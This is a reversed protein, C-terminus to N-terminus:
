ARNILAQLQEALAGDDGAHFLLGNKRHEVLEAMGGLDSVIVPIKTAFAEQIVNPSNEYWLSPVVLIDLDEMVSVLEKRDFLGKFEIKRHDSTFSKLKKVYGPNKTLDGFIDLHIPYDALRNIAKILVEVGKIESIQGIYGVRLIKTTQKVVVSHPLILIDVGQRSFIIKAPDVGAKIYADRLFNSPSIIQKTLNLEDILVILRRQIDDISQSNHRWYIDMLGPFINRLWRYRRKEEALCRVCKWSKIPLSSLSGDSRIMQIRPCLYWFDTLSVISPIGKARAAKLADVTLLYGGFVHFIDAKVVELLDSITDGLATNQYFYGLRDSRGDLQIDLQYVRM